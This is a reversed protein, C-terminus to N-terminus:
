AATAPELVKIDIERGLARFAEEIQEIRSAHDLRFLRDVSERKWNLRRQLDARTFGASRMANYLKVKLETQLALRIRPTCDGSIEPLPIEERHDMMSMLICEFADIAHARADEEDEGYTVIPLDPSTVLITGNDDPEFNVRYSLM